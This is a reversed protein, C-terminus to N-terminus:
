FADAGRRHFCRIEDPNRSHQSIPFPPCLPVRSCSFGTATEVPVSLPAAEFTEVIGATRPSSDIEWTQGFTMDILGAPIAWLPAWSQVSATAIAISTGQSRAPRGDSLMREPGSATCLEPRFKTASRGCKSIIRLSLSISIHTGLVAVIAGSFSLGKGKSM